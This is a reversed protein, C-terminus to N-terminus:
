LTRGQKERPGLEKVTGDRYRLEDGMRSPLALAQNCGPRGDYPSLELGQYFSDYSLRMTRASGHQKYQAPM